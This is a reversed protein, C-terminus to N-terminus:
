RALIEDLTLTNFDLTGEKASSTIIKGVAKFLEGIDDPSRSLKKIHREDQLGTIQTMLERDCDNGLEFAFVTLLSKDVLERIKFLSATLAQRDTLATERNIVYPAGGTIIVLIPPYYRLDNDRLIATRKDLHDLASALALGILTQLRCRIRLGKGNNTTHNIERMPSLVEIIENYSLVGLETRTRAKPNGLLNEYLEALSSQIAEACSHMSNSADTLILVPIRIDTLLPDVRSISALGSIGGFNTIGDISFTPRDTM